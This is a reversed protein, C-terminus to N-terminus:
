AMLGKIYEALRVALAVLTLMPNAFGTTPFVSPGTIYLNSVGHVRCNEDVVGRKPDRHMRTTGMHHCGGKLSEPWATDDEDLEMLFRGLGARGLEQGIIEHARRMSRKDAEGLRWDLRVRNMGLRDKEPSLTVRSDPNPAQETRNYLRYVPLDGKFLRGYLSVAVDDIDTIMDGLHKWFADPMRGRRIERYLYRLAGFGESSEARDYEEGKSFVLTASFNQLRERRLTEEELALAGFIKIGNVPHREYLGMPTGPDSLLIAGSELHPHEMYFRGVLDNENGLGATQVQNSLLLLRPIELGGLALIFIGASVEFRNGELTAARVRSVRRAAEDTGIEVANAHLYVTINGAETVDRRYTEGFRTPPSFQFVKTIVRGPEFPLPVTASGDSWFGAEYNYPGLQCIAQAREYFPDLHPKGFPWGSHPIWGREEFDIADLPECVGSWVNTTGGFYRMRTVELPFYPQGVVEGKNLEQTERDFELGGSELLCVRFRYGALERALTIGVAGAGVICVEAEILHGEPLTRSDILM